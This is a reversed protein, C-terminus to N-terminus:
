LRREVYEKLAVANNFEENKAAFLLTVRRKTAVNILDDLAKPHADLVL